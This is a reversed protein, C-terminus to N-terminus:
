MMPRLGEARRSDYKMQNTEEPQVHIIPLLGAIPHTDPYVKNSSLERFQQITPSFISVVNGLCCSDVKQKTTLLNM